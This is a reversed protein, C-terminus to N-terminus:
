VDGGLERGNNITIRCCRVALPTEQVQTVMTRGLRQRPARELFAHQHAMLSEIGTKVNGTPEWIVQLIAMRCINIPADADHFLSVTQAQRQHIDVGNHSVELLTPVGRLMMAVREKLAEMHHSGVIAVDLGEEQM